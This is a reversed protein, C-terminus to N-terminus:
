QKNKSLEYLVQLGTQRVTATNCAQLVAKDNSYIQVNKKSRTVATYFMEKTILRTHEEDFVVAVTQWESGQSKHVTMAYATSLLHHELIDVPIKRLVRGEFCVVLGTKDKLCIGIDGNFLELDYRNQTMMVVKGHYWPSQSPPLREFRRHQESLFANIQEDGCWGQHSACLIRFQNLQNFAQQIMNLQEDFDADAFRWRYSKILKFFDLYMKSLCLYLKTPNHQYIEIPQYTLDDFDDILSKFNDLSHQKQQNILKALTGVGSNEDFRRSHILNIQCNSLLPLRSLDALVAGADVAALQNTDGLLIVRTGTRIAAFLQYALEAGLMSSEDIIIMDADIPNKEHYRPVGNQGIGLLRHITKPEPLCLDQSSALAAQLSESMRMAAKGTPAALALKPTKTKSTFAFLALVIQAVTFTKGTGPGGTILVLPYNSVLQVAQKQEQNMGQPLDVLSLPTIQASLLRRIHLLLTSEAYFARYAWFHLQNQHYYYVIPRADSQNPTDISSFLNSQQLLHNLKCLSQKASVYFAYYARFANQLSELFDQIKPLDYMQEQILQQYINALSHQVWTAIQQPNQQIQQKYEHFLDLANISFQCRHNLHELHLLITSEYSFDGNLANENLTLITHGNALNDSLVGLFLQFLSEHIRSTQFPTALLNKDFYWSAQSKIRDLVYNAIVASM